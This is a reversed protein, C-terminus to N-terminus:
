AANNDDIGDGDAPLALRVQRHCARAAPLLDAPRAGAASHEGPNGKPPGTTGLTYILTLVDDPAIRESHEHLDIPEKAFGEIQNLASRVDQDDELYFIPGSVGEQDERYTDAGKGPAPDRPLRTPFRRGPVTTSAPRGSSRSSTSDRASRLM